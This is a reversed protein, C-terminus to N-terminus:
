FDMLVREPDPTRGRRVMTVFVATSICPVISAAILVPAFSSRDTVVGILYTAILTGIGAGTGSMGSVTAVARSQFVDAPMALFITACAAYAFTSWAILVVIVAFSSSYAAPILVLISPGFLLYVTRRAKGVPWGRAILYSSLGGGTFNGLDAALFPIWFGLISEELNFGKSVLLIPFWEAIFFWFPDLLARALVIGRTQRYNLLGGWGAPRESGADKAPRGSQILALEEPSIRPHEEPRRYVKHWVLLWLFGLSGTIVFAPRWTGFAGYIGLVIYPAVAGGISSGSDFLAVAWGREKAPFWESVAKTAGPWNAAEGTGLLFRFVWFSRLGQAGATACAVVSYWAVSLSLGKRTGLWDVLRGSVAQMITYALRFGILVTAYDTNSWGYDRKLYPSLVSLTQRDIYNIVTSAFLLAGIWWRLHRIPRAM